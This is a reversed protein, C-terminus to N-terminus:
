AGARAAKSKPKSVAAAIVAEYIVQGLNVNREKLTRKAQDFKKQDETPLVFDIRVVGDPLPDGRRIKFGKSIKRSTQKKMLGHAIGYEDAWLDATRRTFPLHEEVWAGFGERTRSGQKKLKIRLYYLLPAAQAKTVRVCRKLASQLAPVTLKAPSNM